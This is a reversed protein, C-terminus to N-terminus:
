FVKKLQEKVQTSGKFQTEGVGENCNLGALQIQEFRQNVTGHICLTMYLLKLTVNQSTYQVQSVSFLLIM